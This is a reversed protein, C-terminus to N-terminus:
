AQTAGGTGLGGFRWGGRGQFDVRDVPLTAGLRTSARLKLGKWDGLAKVERSGTHAAQGGDVHFALVKYAAFETQAYQQYFKWVARSGSSADAVLFPLEFAEIIPFRGTSYGPATWVIDAVGNKVQDVLQAPTGGLQMAPYFQCAIRGNSDKKLTECFPQLVKQQTPVGAPLFHAVKLTVEQACVGWSAGGVAISVSALLWAHHRIKM